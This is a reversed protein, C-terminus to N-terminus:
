LNKEKDIGMNYYMDVRFRDKPSNIPVGKYTPLQKRHGEFLIDKPEITILTAKNGELRYTFYIEGYVFEFVKNSILHVKYINDEIKEGIIEGARLKHMLNFIFDKYAVMNYMKLSKVLKHFQNEDEYAIKINTSADFYYKRVKGDKNM